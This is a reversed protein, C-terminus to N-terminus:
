YLPIEEVLCYTICLRVFAQYRNAAAGELPTHRQRNYEAHVMAALDPRTELLIRVLGQAAKKSDLWLAIDLAWDPVRTIERRELLQTSLSEQSSCAEFAPLVLRRVTDIMNQIEAERGAPDALQWKLYEHAPSLYGVQSIWLNASDTVGGNDKRWKELSSSKVQAHMAVAVHQGSTNASDSQFSVIHTFPGMKRSFRLGSKAWRFGEAAFASAVAGCSSQVVDAVLETGAPVAQFQGAGSRSRAARIAATHDDLSLLKKPM